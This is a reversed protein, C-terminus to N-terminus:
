YTTNNSDHIAEKSRGPPLVTMEFPFLAYTTCAGDPIIKVDDGADTFIEEEKKILFKRCAIKYTLVLSIVPKFGYHKKPDDICSHYYCYTDKLHFSTVHPSLLTHITLHDVEKMKFSESSLPKIPPEPGRENRLPIDHNCTNLSLDELQTEELPEVEILTGLTEEVEEPYTVPPTYVEFSPLVQPTSQPSLNDVKDEMM